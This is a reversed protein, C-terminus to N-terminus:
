KLFLSLLSTFILLFGSYVLLFDVQFLLGIKTKKVERKKEMKKILKKGSFYLLFGFFLITLEFGMNM